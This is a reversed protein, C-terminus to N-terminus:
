EVCIAEEIVKKLLDNRKKSDFKKKFLSESEKKMKRLKNKDLLSKM